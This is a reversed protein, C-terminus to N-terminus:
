AEPWTNSSANANKASAGILYRTRRIPWGAIVHDRRICVRSDGAPTVHAGRVASACSRYGAGYVADFATTSFDAFRGYPWAFHPISGLRTGLIEQSRGLEDDLQPRNMTAMNTHTMSHSGVEHGDKLLRELDDWNLQEAPPMNLAEMSFAALRASDTEGIMEPNVFYCATARYEALIRAVDLGNKLGDDISFTVYAADAAGTRVREVAESYSVFRHSQSLSQLLLRFRKAEDDFVHHLYIFHVRPRNLGRRTSGSLRARIGLADLVVARAKSRIDHPQIDGYQDLM